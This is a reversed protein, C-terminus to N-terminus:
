RVLIRISSSLFRGLSVLAFYDGPFLENQDPYVNFHFYGRRSYPSREEDDEFLVAERFPNWVRFGEGVTVVAVLARHLREDIKAADEEKLQYVGSIIMPGRPSVASPAAILVGSFGQPTAPTAKTRRTSPYKTIEEM